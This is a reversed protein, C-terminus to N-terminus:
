TEVRGGEKKQGAWGMERKPAKKGKGKAKGKDALREVM